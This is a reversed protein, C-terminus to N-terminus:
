HVDLTYLEHDLYKVLLSIYLPPFQSGVHEFIFWGVFTFM